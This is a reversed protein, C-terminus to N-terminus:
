RVACASAQLRLEMRRCAATVLVFKIDRGRLPSRPRAKTLAAAVRSVQPLQWTVRVEARQAEYTGLSSGGSVRSSACDCPRALRYPVLAETRPILSTVALPQFGREM